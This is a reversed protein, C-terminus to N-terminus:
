VAEDGIEFDALYRRYNRGLGIAFGLAMAIKREVSLAIEDLAEEFKDFLESAGGRAVLLGGSIAAGTEM